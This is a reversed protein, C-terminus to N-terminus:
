APAGRKLSLKKNQTVVRSAQALEASSVARMRAFSAFNLELVLM